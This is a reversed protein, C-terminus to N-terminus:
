GASNRRSRALRVAGEARIAGSAAVWCLYAWHTVFSLPISVAFMVMFIVLRRDNDTAKAADEHVQGMRRMRHYMVMFCSLTAIQIIAYFSFRVGFAGNGALVRTAFPQIVILFLWIMNMTTVVPDLRQVALFLRHHSRWHSGIVVFSILFALYASGKGSLSHLLASNSTTSTGTPLSPLAFALLTIAIAVVADSFFILRETTLEAELEGQGEAPGDGHGEGAGPGPEEAAGSV